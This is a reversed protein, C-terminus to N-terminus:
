KINWKEATSLMDPAIGMKYETLPNLGQKLHDLGVDRNIKELLAGLFARARPPYKNVYGILSSLEKKKLSTINSILLKIAAKKNM